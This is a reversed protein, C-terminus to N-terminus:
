ELVSTNNVFHKDGPQDYAYRGVRAATAVTAAVGLLVITALSATGRRSSRNM